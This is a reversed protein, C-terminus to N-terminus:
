GARRMGEENDNPAGDLIGDSAVGRYKQFNENFKTALFHLKQRYMEPDSWTSSPDLIESPVGPCSRPIAFGFVPMTDCAIQDLNGEMAQSILARTYKLKIRSGVGFPGGTWGTNVLWVNIGGKEMREGLMEAYKTPPLPMFPEGFCASFALQPDKIGVETGAVKSTYGSLFHFMAQEKNLKSLPPLVGLGDCALFFINKPAAGRAGPQLHLIHNIPYSVRTNPTLSDDAFNITRTGELFTTNEVIAGFTIANWIDPEEEESLNITKAYCGGEFNFVGDPGWGHEDDGILAREPDASLTTKGTGSLGFFLATDGQKGVNASCHMALVDQDHPLLFNMVSFIGKKMEGSYATGGILIIKDTMNIIAFNDQRTGDEQPNAKFEPVCIVTFGPEFQNLEDDSPQVFMNACFLNHWAMTNYVRVNLRHSPDTGAYMDRTFLTKGELFNLMKDLLGDFYKREIPKNIDGWFVSDRTIDDEVIFRDQPSRGTFKGTNVCLAGSDALVGEGMDLSFEYLEAPSLNRKIDGVFVSRQNAATALAPNLTIAEM